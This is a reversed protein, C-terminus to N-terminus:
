TRDRVCRVVVRKDGGYTCTFLTLDWDDGTIIAQLERSGRTELRSVTYSWVTGDVATFTVKDGETLKHLGAFHEVYNHGLIVMQGDPTGSYRCPSVRLDSYGWYQLVPLKLGLAPIELIGVVDYGDVHVAAPAQEQAAPQTEAGLAPDTEGDGSAATEASAGSETEAPATEAKRLLTSVEETLAASAKGAEASRVRNVAYLAAAALICCCGLVILIKQTKNRKKM